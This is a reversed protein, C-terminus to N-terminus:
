FVVAEDDISFFIVKSGARYGCRLYDMSGCFANLLYTSEQKHGYKLIWGIPNVAVHM